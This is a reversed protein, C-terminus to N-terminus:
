PTALGPQGADSVLEGIAADIQVLEEVIDALRAIALGQLGGSGM